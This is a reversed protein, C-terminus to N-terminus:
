KFMPEEHVGGGSSGGSSGGSAPAVWIEVYTNFDREAINIVCWRTDKRFLMLTRPSKFSTVTAWGDRVMNNDFYTILSNMEIRGKVSLVGAAFGPTRYVFTASKDVRMDNPILVDSFEYYLGSYSGVGGSGMPDGGRPSGGGGSPAFSDSNLTQCGGICLFIAITLYVMITKKM